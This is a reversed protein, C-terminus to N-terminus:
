SETMYCSVVPMPIDCIPGGIGIKLVVQELTALMLQPTLMSPHQMQHLLASLQWIYQLIFPHKFALGGTLLSGHVVDRKFTRVGRSIDNTWGVYIFVRRHQLIKTTRHSSWTQLVVRYSSVTTLLHPSGCPSNSAIDNSQPSVCVSM